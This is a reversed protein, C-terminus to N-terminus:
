LSRRYSHIFPAEGARMQQAVMGMGKSQAVGMGGLVAEPRVVPMLPHPSPSPVQVSSSLSVDTPINIHNGHGCM